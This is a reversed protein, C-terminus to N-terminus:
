GESSQADAWRVRKLYTTRPRTNLQEDLMAYSLGDAKLRNVKAPPDHLDGFVIAQTPCVQQCATLIAGDPIPQDSVKSAIRAENIRQVCYTCKEMVGRARVTVNPNHMLKYSATNLDSYQFFNFRRVKYPCNNSCYRTGVCRNYTMENLGEKSHSTAAVPCVLECPATECHMCMLPQFITRLQQPDAPDGRYYRDIRIWHMQRGMLVQEKGVVPSNNESQCAMVCANCGICAGTDISMGWAHGDWQHEPAPFLSLPKSHAPLAKGVLESWEELPALDRDPITQVGNTTQSALHKPDILQHLQTCALEMHQGTPTLTAPGASTLASTTALPYANFGVQNKFDGGARGSKARGYGLHITICGDAHGPFLWVPGQITSGNAAVKVVQGNEVNLRKADAPSLLVANDWTLKTLPKPLEQLWGNNAQRGDGICPDPRLILEMQGAPAPPPAPAALSAPPLDNILPSTSNPLHGQQLALRWASEFDGTQLHEKWYDRLIEYDSKGVIGAFFALLDIASKGDYLPAILPQTLGVTGDFARLDGWSELWHAAPIHWNCLFSTEDQYLSLHIALPPPGQRPRSLTFTKLVDAFHLDGPADYAPNGELILLMQCRESQLKAVLASLSQVQNVQQVEVSQRPLVTHGMNGLHHNIQHVLAHSYEDLTEGALVMCKGRSQTLRQTLLQIMAQQRPPLAATPPANPVGLAGALTFTFDRLQSPTLPLHHEAMAGALSPTTEMVYLRNVPGNLAHLGSQDFRIRRRDIFNRAYTLAGPFQSLFDCDLSVIVDAKSFDYTIDVPKDYARLLGARRQHHDAASWQHWSAKPFRQLVKQLLDGQTPCTLTTTLICLGAGGDAALQELVPSVSGVFGDWTSVAGNRTYSQSRDPDYLDLIAAQTQADTAGLSAPHLPNGEIKTPRGEHSEVLVGVGRGGDSPACSAYFLPKGPIIEEPPHVYPVLRTEPQRTCSALGALAVSAGALKLFDRRSQSDTLESANPPFERYLSEYFQDRGGQEDLSRWVKPATRSPTAPLIRLQIPQHSM